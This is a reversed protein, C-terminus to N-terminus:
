ALIHNVLSSLVLLPCVLSSKIQESVGFETQRIYATWFLNTNRGLHDIGVERVNVFTKHYRAAGTM